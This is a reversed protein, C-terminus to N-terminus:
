ANLSRAALRAINTEVTDLYLNAGPCESTAPASLHRHVAEFEDDLKPRVFNRWFDPTRAILEDATKFPRKDLPVHNFEYAEEFEAFLAPLKENYGPDAMQGLYDATAVMCGTIRQVPDKFHLRDIRSNTGTCRIAVLTNDLEELTVGLQPLVSAAIACSRLVHSFTYKAGTGGTDSRLKLYGSDHLMIAAFGLEFDRPTFTPEARDRLRGQAIDIFCLTARLTHQFNHYRLDCPQFDLYHGAFLDRVLPVVARVLTAPSTPDLARLHAIAAALVESVSCTRSLM